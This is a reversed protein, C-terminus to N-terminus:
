IIIIVCSQVAFLRYNILQIFCFKVNTMLKFFVM